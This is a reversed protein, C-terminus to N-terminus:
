ALKKMKLSMPAAQLDVLKQSTLHLNMRSTHCCLIQFVWNKLMRDSEFFKAM